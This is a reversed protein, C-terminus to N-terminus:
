KTVVGRGKLSIDNSVNSEMEEYDSDNLLRRTGENCQDLFFTPPVERTACHYLIRRGICSARTRDRTLSSSGVHM